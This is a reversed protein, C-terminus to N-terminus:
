FNKILLLRKCLSNGIVASPFRVSFENLGFVKYTPIILYTYFHPSTTTSLVCSSLSHSESNTREQKLYQTHMIGLAVEDGYALATNCWAAVIEINIRNYSNIHIATINKKKIILKKM